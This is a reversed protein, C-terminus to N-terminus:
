YNFIYAVFSAIATGQDNYITTTIQRSAAGNFVGNTVTLTYQHNFKYNKLGVGSSAVNTKTTQAVDTISNFNNEGIASKTIVVAKFIAEQTELNSTLGSSTAQMMQPMAIVAIAIVVIAFILEIM